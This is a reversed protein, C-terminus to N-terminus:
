EAKENTGHHFPLQLDDWGIQRVFDELWEQCQGESWQPKDYHQWEAWLVVALIRKSDGNWGPPTPPTVLSKHVVIKGMAMTARLGGDQLSEENITIGGFINANYYADTGLLETFARIADPHGTANLKTIAEQIHQIETGNDPKRSHGYFAAGSFVGWLLYALFAVFVLAVVGMVLGLGTEVRGGGSTEVQPAKRSVEYKGSASSKMSSKDLLASQVPLKWYAKNIVYSSYSIPNTNPSFVGFTGEAVGLRLQLEAFDDQDVDRDRDFDAAIYGDSGPTLVCQPPLVDESYTVSPGTACDAFINIDDQDVDGDFDFDGQVEITVSIPVFQPSNGVNGDIRLVASHIGVEMSATQFTLTLDRTEGSSSTYSPSVDFWPAGPQVQLNLLGGGSNRVQLTLDPLNTGKTTTLSVSPTLVEIIPCTVVNGSGTFNANLIALDDNDLDGDNDLDMYIRYDNFIDGGAAIANQLILRDDEDIDGDWSYEVENWVPMDGIKAPCFPEVTLRIALNGPLGESALDYLVDNRLLLNFGEWSGTGSCIVNASDTTMPQDVHGVIQFGVYFGSPSPWPPEDFIAPALFENSPNDQDLKWTRTLPIDNLGSPVLVAMDSIYRLVGESDYLLPIVKVPHHYLNENSLQWWVQIKTAKCPFLPRASDIYSLIIDNERFSRVVMPTSDQEVREIKLTYQQPPVQAQVRRMDLNFVLWISFLSLVTMNQKIISSM